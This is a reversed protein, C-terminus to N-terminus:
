QWMRRDKNDDGKEIDCKKTEPGQEGSLDIAAPRDPSGLFCVMDRVSDYYYESESKVRGPSCCKRAFRFLFPKVM